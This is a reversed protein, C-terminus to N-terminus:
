YRWASIICVRVFPIMVKTVDITALLLMPQGLSLTGYMQIDSQKDVKNILIYIDILNYM